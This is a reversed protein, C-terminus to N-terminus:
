LRNRSLSLAFNLSAGSRTMSGGEELAIRLIQRKSRGARSISNSDGSSFSFNLSRHKFLGDIRPRISGEARMRGRAKETIKWKTGQLPVKSGELVSCRRSNSVSFSALAPEIMEALQHLRGLRLDGPWVVAVRLTSQASGLV